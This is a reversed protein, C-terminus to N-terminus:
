FMDIMYYKATSAFHRKGTSLTATIDNRKIYRDRDVAAAVPSDFTTKSAVEGNVKIQWYWWRRPKSYYVGHYGSSNTKRPRQVRCMDATPILYLRDDDYVIDGDKDTFVTKFKEWNLSLNNNRNLSV